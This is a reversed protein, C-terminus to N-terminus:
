ALQELIHLLRDGCRQWSYHTEVLARGAQGLRQRLEPERLLRLIAATFAEPTDALLLHKEHEVALGEAGISTSVVAKQMALAELIKIRTGSGILLPVIAISTRQFYPRTDPVSGTVTIGPQNALRLIDPPPNKGVICWQLAPVHQRLTPWCERAFFLVGSTNPYYDISGTFLLQPPEAEGETIPTFSTLNVGNPVVEIPRDPVLKHLIHQERESTVLILDAKSCQALEYPRVLRYELWNYLKRLANSDHQYSRCLLEFELNHQLLITRTGPPLRMGASLACDFIVADYHTLRFHEDIAQQMVPHTYRLLTNSKGRALNLLQRVRKQQGTGPRTLVHITNVFSSLRTIDEEVHIEDPQAAALLSVPHQQALAKLLFFSRAKAGWTPSPLYPSIVLLRM